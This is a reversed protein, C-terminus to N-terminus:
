DNGTPQHDGCRQSSTTLPWSAGIHPEMKQPSRHLCYGFTESDAPEWWHCNSCTPHQLDDLIGM